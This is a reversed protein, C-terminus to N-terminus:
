GGTPESVVHNFTDRKEGCIMCRNLKKGPKKRSLTPEFDHALMNWRNIFVTEFSSSSLISPKYYPLKSMQYAWNNILWAIVESLERPPLSVGLRKLVEARNEPDELVTLGDLKNVLRNVSPRMGPSAADDGTYPFRAGDRPDGGTSGRPM